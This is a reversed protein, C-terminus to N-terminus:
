MKESVILCQSKIQHSAMRMDSNQYAALCHMPAHHGKCISCVEQLAMHNSKTKKKSATATLNSAM